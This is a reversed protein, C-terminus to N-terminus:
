SVGGTILRGVRLLEMLDDLKMGKAQALRSLAAEYAAMDMAKKMVAEILLTETRCFTARLTMAASRAYSDDLVALCNQELAEIITEQEGQGLRASFGAEELRKRGIETLSVVLVERNRVAKDIVDADRHGAARGRVVVEQYVGATIVIPGCVREVLTLLKAKSLYVIASADLKATV